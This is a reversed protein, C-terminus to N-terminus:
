TCDLKFIRRYLFVTEDKQPQINRSETNICPEKETQKYEGQKIRQHSLTQENTKIEKYWDTQTETNEASNPSPQSPLQSKLSQQPQRGETTKTPPKSTM